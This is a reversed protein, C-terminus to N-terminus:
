DFREQIQYVITGVESSTQSDYARGNFIKSRFLDLKIIFIFDM